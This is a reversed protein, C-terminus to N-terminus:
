GIGDRVRASNKVSRMPLDVFESCLRAAGTKDRLWSHCSFQSMNNDAFNHYYWSIKAM